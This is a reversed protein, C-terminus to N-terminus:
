LAAQKELAMPLQETPMFQIQVILRDNEYELM